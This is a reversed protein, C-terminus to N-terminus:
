RTLAINKGTTMYPHSLRVMFVASRQLSSAKSSYPQLLSKFLGKSQLSIWGTWRLPFWGQINMPFVSASISSVISQGGSTLLQSMPFYGSAPFSQPCSSFPIVFSSTTSHCRRSLPCSNSCVRPSLSLYPRRSHQLGNPNCLTLCSQAVLCCHSNLIKIYLFYFNVKNAKYM